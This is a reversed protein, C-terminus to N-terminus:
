GSPQPGFNGSFVVTSFAFCTGQVCLVSDKPKYVVVLSGVRGNMFFFSRVNSVFGGFGEGEEAGVM